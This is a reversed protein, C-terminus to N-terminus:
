SIAVHSSNLRTSKRDLRPGFGHARHDGARLLAVEGSGTDKRAARGDGGQEVRAAQAGEMLLRSRFKRHGHEIGRARAPGLFRRVVPAFELGFREAVPGRSLRDLAALRALD